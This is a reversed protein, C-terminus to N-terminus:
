ETLQRLRVVEARLSEVEKYSEFLQLNAKEMKKNSEHFQVNVKELEKNSEYLQLHLKKLKASAEYARRASIVAADKAREAEQRSQVAM